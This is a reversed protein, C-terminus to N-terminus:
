TVSWLNNNQKNTQKNKSCNKFNRRIKVPLCPNYFSSAETFFLIFSFYILSLEIHVSNNVCRTIRTRMGFSLHMFYHSNLMCARNRDAASKEETQDCCDGGNVLECCITKHSETNAWGLMLSVSVTRTHCLPIALPQLQYAPFPVNLRSTEQGRSARNAQKVWLTNTRNVM